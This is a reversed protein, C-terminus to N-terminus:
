NYNNMINVFEKDSKFDDIINSVLNISQDIEKLESKSFKSLVYNKTKYPWKFNISQKNKSTM